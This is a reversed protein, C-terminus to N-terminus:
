RRHTSVRCYLVSTLLNKRLSDWILYKLRQELWLIRSKYCSLLSPCCILLHTCNHGLLVKNPFVPPLGSKALLGWNAPKQYLLHLFGINLALDGYGSISWVPSRGLEYHCCPPSSALYVSNIIIEDSPILWFGALYQCVGENWISYM